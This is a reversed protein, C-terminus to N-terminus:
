LGQSGSMNQQNRDEGGGLQYGTRKLQISEDSIRERCKLFPFLKASLFIAQCLCFVIGAGLVLITCTTMANEQM